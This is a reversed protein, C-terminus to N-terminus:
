PARWLLDQDGILFWRGSAFSIQRANDALEVTGGIWTSGLDLSIQIQDTAGAMPSQYLETPRNALAALMGNACGLSRAESFDSGLEKFQWSSSQARSIGFLHTGAAVLSDACVSLSKWGSTTGDVHSWVKGDASEWLGGPPAPVDPHGIVVDHAMVFRGDHYALSVFRNTHPYVLPFNGTQVLGWTIGDSSSVSDGSSTIALFRDGGWAVAVLDKNTSSNAVSWRVGDTDSYVISGAIGVAVFVGKNNVAIDSLSPSCFVMAEQWTDGRDRSALVIGSKVNPDTNGGGVAVLLSSTSTMRKLDWRVNRLLDQRVSGDLNLLQLVPANGHQASMLLRGDALQAFGLINFPYLGPLAIPTWSKGDRSYAASEGHSSIAVLLDSNSVPFIGGAKIGTNYTGLFKCTDGPAGLGPDYVNVAANRYTDLADVVTGEASRMRSTSSGSQCAGLSKSPLLDARSLLGASPIWTTLDVTTVRRYGYYGGNESWVSVQSLLQLSGSADYIESISVVGPNGLSDYSLLPLEVISRWTVGDDDSTLVSTGNAAVLKGKFAVPGGTFKRAVLHWSKGEDASRLLGLTTTFFVTKGVVVINPHKDLAPLASPTRGAIWTKDFGFGTLAKRDGAVLAQRVSTVDATNSLRASLAQFSSGNSLLTSTAAEIAQDVTDGPQTGNAAKFPTSVFDTIKSVDAVGSLLTRLDQQASALQTANLKSASAAAFGSYLDAPHAGAMRAVLMDTFPTINVTGSGLWPSHLRAGAADLSQVICPTATGPVSASWSGDATSISEGRSGDQCKWQIKVNALARGTAATGSVAYNTPPPTEVVLPANIPSSGGGCAGLLAIAFLTGFNRLHHSFVIM